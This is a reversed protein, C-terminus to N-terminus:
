NQQVQENTRNRRHNFIIMLFLIWSIVRCSYLRRHSSVQTLCVVHKDIIMKNHPCTFLLLVEFTNLTFSLQATVCCMLIIYLNFEATHRPYFPCTWWCHGPAGHSLAVNEGLVITFVLPRLLFFVRKLITIALLGGTMAYLCRFTDNMWSLRNAPTM